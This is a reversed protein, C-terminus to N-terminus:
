SCFNERYSEQIQIISSLGSRSRSCIRLCFSTYRKTIPCVLDELQRRAQEIVADQGSLVICMRSLDRIETRCVVLSDINFGRGALIGSIRSLVGPENQVLCNLIHRFLLPLSFHSPSEIKLKFFISACKKYPQLNPPPTNYLINTVAEEASRTRPMDLVPLPPPRFRHVRKYDLASTSDDIPKPPQPPKQSSSDQQRANVTSFFLRRTVPPGLRFRLTHIFTM